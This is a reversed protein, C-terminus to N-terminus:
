LYSLKSNLMFCPSLRIKVTSLLYAFTYLKQCMVFRSLLFDFMGMSIILIQVTNQELSTLDDGVTNHSLTEYIHFWHPFTDSTIWTYSDHTTPLIASYTPRLITSHRWVGTWRWMRWRQERSFCKALRRWSLDLCPSRSSLNGQQLCRQKTFKINFRLTSYIRWM